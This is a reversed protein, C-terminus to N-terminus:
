TCLSSYGGGFYNDKLEQALDWDFPDNLIVIKILYKKTGYTKLYETKIFGYKVLNKLALKIQSLNLGSNIKELNFIIDNEGFIIDQNNIIVYNSIKKPHFNNRIKINSIVLLANKNEMLWQMSWNGKGSIWEKTKGLM